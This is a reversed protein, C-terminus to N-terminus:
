VDRCYGLSCRETSILHHLFSFIDCRRCIRVNKLFMDNDTSNWSDCSVINPHYVYMTVESTTVTASVDLGGGTAAKEENKKVTAEM